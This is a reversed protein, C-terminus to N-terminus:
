PGLEGLCKLTMLVDTIEVLGDQDADTYIADSCTLSDGSLSRLGTLVDQLRVLDSHDWDTCPDFVNMVVMESYNWSKSFPGQYPGGASRGIGLFGETAPFGTNNTYSTWLIAHRHGWECCEGDDYMWIYISRELPLRITNTTTVFVAINEAVGLFDHCSEILPNTNLREWPSKGDATHGWTNNDILYDAYYESITDVNGEIAQLPTANRDLRERNIIWLAKEDDSMSDWETQSPFTLMPLSSGLLQNETARANNFADEIDQVSIEGGSWPIDSAPDASYTLGQMTMTNEKFIPIGPRVEDATSTSATTCVCILITLYVSIRAMSEM